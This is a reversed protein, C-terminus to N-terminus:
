QAGNEFSTCACRSRGTLEHIPLVSLAKLLNMTVKEGKEVKAEERMPEPTSPASLLYLASGRDPGFRGGHGMLAM